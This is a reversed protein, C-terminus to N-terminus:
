GSSDRARAAVADGDSDGDRSQAQPRKLLGIFDVKRNFVLWIMVLAPVLNNAIRYGLALLTAEAIPHGYMHLTAVVAAEFTGLGGPAIAVILGLTAAVFLVFWQQAELVIGGGVRFFVIFQLIAAAWIWFTLFATGAVRIPTTSFRVSLSLHEAVRRMPAYPLRVAIGVCINPAFSVAVIAILGLGGVVFIVPAVKELAPITALGGSVVLVILLVCLFAVDFIRELMVAVVTRSMSTGRTKLYLPKVAEALRSPLIQQVVQTLCVAELAALFNTAGGLILLLRVSSILLGLMLLPQIIFFAERLSSINVLIPAGWSGYVLILALAAMVAFLWAFLGARGAFIRAKSPDTPATM